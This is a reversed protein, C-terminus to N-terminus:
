VALYYVISKPPLTRLRNELENSPLGSLYTISLRPQFPQFQVGATQEYARSAGNVVFVHQLDPHLASALALTGGLNLVATVGTSNPPRRPAPQDSFFVIPTEPFLETRYTEIFELSGSDMAIVVDFRHGEYKLDLFSRFAGKYDDQTYRAQDMVESYYDVGTSLSGALIRPLERDGVTVLQADRRTAYLVLVQKQAEPALAGPSGGAGPTVVAALVVSLLFRKRSRRSAPM